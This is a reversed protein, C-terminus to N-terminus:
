LNVGLNRQSPQQGKKQTLTIAENPKILGLGVGLMFLFNGM